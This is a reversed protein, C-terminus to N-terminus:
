GKLVEGALNSVYKAIAPASTLGLSEIGILNIFGPLGKSYEHIIVFDKFDEGEAQLKPRIGAMEPELDDYEIFLLNKIASEYFARRQSNDVSYDIKDVYRADPGLHMRGDLDLTVHIGHDGEGTKPVPYILRSVLKNKRNSVSFYEGKCYHLKYSAKAVNIEVMEAVEGSHLGACNIIVATAFSFSDGSNEVRVKYGFSLKDIGVVKTRYTIRPGNDRAKGLFYRILAQSNVIGTSPSLLAAVGKVSPQLKGLEQQFLLELGKVGNNRGRKLLMELERAETDDTAVIIKGIKRHGIGHRQCLEYLLANSELCTKAKLSDEPYYIGAHIVESNRSSQEQGFAENKELLYVERSEKAVQSAIALGIM